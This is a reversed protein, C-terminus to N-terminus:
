SAGPLPGLPMKAPLPERSATTAVFLSPSAVAGGSVAFVVAPLKATAAWESKPVTWNESELVALPRAADIVGVPPM